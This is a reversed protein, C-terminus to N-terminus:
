IEGGRLEIVKLYVYELSRPVENLGTVKVGVDLLAKLVQHNTDPSSASAYRFWNQGQDTVRVDAPLSSLAGDLRGHIRVEVLPQGLVQHKLEDSSGQAIISGQSIIAIRDALQEAEALNHTCVIIARESSRLAKISNRVLHASSPDMASTPEDLLLIPPDHLLTRVLALKQRMGKSFQGLRRDYAQALGFRDLLHHIRTRAIESDLGYVQGFFELYDVQNMRTYLGHHETLLGIRRRVEVDNDVVDLGDIWVQGSTPKLISALMRITTTKGAGNPGVPLDGSEGGAAVAM